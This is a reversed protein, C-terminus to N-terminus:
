ISISGKRFDTKGIKVNIAVSKGASAFDKATNLVDDIEKKDTIQLGQGGLAEVVEHYKTNGLETAVPDKFIEVQDRAIQTWSSDNGIIAILPINHRVFTDFEVMSYGFAGDGYIGWVTANPHTLKGGLIFGAGVGLTGFPGPDLWGLNSRPRLIYSATAVFDGGDAILIDGDKLHKDLKTFFKLPNIYNTSIKSQEHIQELREKDRQRLTNIWTDFDVKNELQNEPLSSFFYGPDAEIALTPKRNLYLDSRSRNISIIEAKRNIQRGYGLRFDCPVGALLVLDAEQLAKKRQHRFINLEEKSLLGRAMGSVFMPMGLSALKQVLNDVQTVNLMTQSGILSVPSKANYMMKSAKQIASSVPMPCMIEPIPKPITEFGTFIHDLNRQLYKELWWSMKQSDTNLGYLERVLDQPYLLDLPLEIFVPGPVGSQAIIIAKNVENAIDKGRKIIVQHKTLPRLLAMQDIDQLSGRGKLITATAGGLLLVPVQATQINKVATLTNTLGPGATVAAVGIAPSLRSVADAAFVATAEHRVDVVRIGKESCAVLIPSIHGGCLTFIFKVDHQLLTEAIISGGHRM